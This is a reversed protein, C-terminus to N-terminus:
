GVPASGNGSFLIKACYWEGWVFAIFSSIRLSSAEGSDSTLTIKAVTAMPIPTSIGDICCTM